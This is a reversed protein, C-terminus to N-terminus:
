QNRSINQDMFDYTMKADEDRVQLPLVFLLGSGSVYVFVLERSELHRGAQRKEVFQENSPNGM